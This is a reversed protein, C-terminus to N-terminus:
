KYEKFSLFFQWPTVKSTLLLKFWCSQQLLNETSFKFARDRMGWKSFPKRNNWCYFFVGGPSNWLLAAFLTLSNYRFNFYIEGALSYVCFFIKMGREYNRIKWSIRELCLIVVFVGFFFFTFNMVGEILKTYVKLYFGCCGCSGNRGRSSFM